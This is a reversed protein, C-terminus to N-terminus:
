NDWEVNIKDSKKKETVTTKKNKDPADDSVSTVNDDDWSVRVKSKNSERSAAKLTSDKKYWGFEEKFISRLETKQKGLNEKATALAQKSDYSIKFVDNYGTIALPIAINGAGDDEIIGFEENEKKKRKAKGWLIDSLLVNVKYVYHNDFNHVGSAKISFASTAVDMQPIIVQKNKIVIKNKLSSFKVNKLEDVAIFKSLNRLPEFNVLEGKSVAVDGEVELKDQNFVLNNNWENAFEIKGNLLGRLHESRLVNQSFNNFSFFMQKIDINYLDLQGKTIFNKHMDQLIVGNGSARGSMTEFSLSKLTFMRPKYFLYGNVWKAKFEHLKFSNVNLKVDLLINDPFLLERSYENKKASSITSKTTNFYNSLDINRSNVEAQLIINKDTGHLFYNIGNTLTGTLKFDNEHLYVEFNNFHIDTDISLTGNIKQLSYDNHKLKFAGNRVTITGLYSLASFDALKLNDTGALLGDITINSEVSGNMIELSDIKFFLKLENLDLQNKFSLHILPQKLNKIKCNGSIYGSGLRASMKSIQLFDSKETISKQTSYSGQFVINKLKIGNSQETFTGDRVLFIADVTPNLKPNDLPGHVKLTLDAGGKGKYNDLSTQINQPLLHMLRDIKLGIGTIVLNIRQRNGLEFNGSVSFKSKEIEAYSDFVQYSIGKVDLNCDVRCRKNNVYQNGKIQINSVILDGFVKLTFNENRFKGKLNLKEAFASIFVGSRRQQFVVKTNVLSVNELDLDLDGSTKSSSKKLIDYNAFGLSDLLIKVTGSEIHLQDMKYSGRLLQILNFNLYLKESSLLTDAPNHIAHQFKRSPLILVNTFEVSADPFKKWLSFDVKKVSVTTSLQKNLQNIVYAILQERFLFNIILTALILFLLFCGTVIGVIKGTRKIIKKM